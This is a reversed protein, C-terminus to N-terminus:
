QIRWLRSRSGAPPYPAQRLIHLLARIDERVLGFRHHTCHGLSAPSKHICSRRPPPDVRGCRLSFHLRAHRTLSTISKHNPIHKTIKPIICPRNRKLTQPTHIASFDDVRDHKVMTPQIVRYSGITPLGSIPASPFPEYPYSHDYSLM